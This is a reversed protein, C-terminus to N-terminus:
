CHCKASTYHAMHACTTSRHITAPCAHATSPHKHRHRSTVESLDHFEPTRGLVGHKTCLVVLDGVRSSPLDFRSCAEERSLVEEVVDSHALLLQASLPPLSHPFWVQACM